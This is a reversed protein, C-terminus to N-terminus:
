FDDKANLDDLFIQEKRDKEKKIQQIQKDILKEFGKRETKKEIFKNNIKEFESLIDKKTNNLNIIKQHLIPIHNLSSMSLMFDSPNNVINECEKLLITTESIKKNIIDIKKQVEDVERKLEDEEIKTIKLLSKFKM